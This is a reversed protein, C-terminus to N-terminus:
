RSFRTMMQNVIVAFEEVLNPDFQAGSKSQIHELTASIDEAQAKKQYATMKDFADTLHIIRAGLPIEEHKMGQLGGGNWYEHHYRIMPVLDSLMSIPELMRAGTEPHRQVVSREEQTFNQRKALLDNPYGLKGIDHLISANHLAKLQKRDMGIQRGLMNAYQAVRKSHASLAKDRVEMIYSLSVVVDTANRQMELNTEAVKRELSAQYQKNEYTLRDKEEMLQRIEIAQEVAVILEEADIPKTLYNRAGQRMVSVATTVDVFGTLMIMPMIPKTEQVFKLVDIGTIKPMRIDCICATIEENQLIDIAEQGNSAIVVRYGKDELYIRLIKLNVDEDDVVLIRYKMNEIPVPTLPERQSLESM